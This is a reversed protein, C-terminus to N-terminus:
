LEEELQEGREGEKQFVIEGYIRGKGEETNKQPIVVNAENPLTQSNEGKGQLKCGRGGGLAIILTV